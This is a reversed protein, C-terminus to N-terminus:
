TNKSGRFSIYRYKTQQNLGLDTYLTMGIERVGIVDHDSNGIMAIKNYNEAEIGAHKIRKVIIDKPTLKNYIDAGNGSM